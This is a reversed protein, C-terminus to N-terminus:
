FVQCMTKVWLYVKNNCAHICVGGWVHIRICLVNYSNRLGTTGLLVESIERDMRQPHLFQSWLGPPSLPSAWAQTASAPRHKGIRVHHKRYNHKYNAIFKGYFINNFYLRQSYNGRRKFTKGRLGQKCQSNERCVREKAWSLSFKVVFELNHSDHVKRRGSNAQHQHFSLTHLTIFHQTHTHTHLPPPPPSPHFCAETKGPSPTPHLQPCPPLERLGFSASFEPWSPPCPSLTRGSHPCPGRPSLNYNKSTYTRQLCFIPM